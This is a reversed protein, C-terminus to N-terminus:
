SQRLVFTIFRIFVFLVVNLTNFMILVIDFVVEEIKCLKVYNYWLKLEGSFFGTRFCLTVM